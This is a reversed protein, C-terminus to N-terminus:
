KAARIAAAVKRCVVSEFYVCPVKEANDDEMFYEVETLGCRCQNAWGFKHGWHIERMAAVWEDHKKNREMADLTAKAQSLPVGRPLFVEHDGLSVVCGASENWASPHNRFKKPTWFLLHLLVLVVGIAVIWEM